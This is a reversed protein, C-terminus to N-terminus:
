HTPPIYKGLVSLTGQALASGFVNIANCQYVGEDETTVSLLHLRTADASIITGNPLGSAGLRTWSYSPDPPGRAICM